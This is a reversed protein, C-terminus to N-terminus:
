FSTDMELVMTNFKGEMGLRTFVYGIREEQLNNELFKEVDNIDTSRWTKKKNKALKRKKSAKDM